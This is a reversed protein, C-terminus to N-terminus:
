GVRYGLWGAIAGIPAVLAIAFKTLTFGGRMAQATEELRDLRSTHEGLIETHQGLRDDQRRLMQYIQVLFERDTAPQPGSEESVLIGRLM